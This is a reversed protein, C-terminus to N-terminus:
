YWKDDLYKKWNFFSFLTLLVLLVIVLFEQLWVALSWNYVLLWFFQIVMRQNNWWIQRILFQDTDVKKDAAFDRFSFLKELLDEVICDCVDSEM